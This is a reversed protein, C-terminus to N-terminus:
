WSLVEESRNNQYVFPESHPNAGISRPFRVRAGAGRPLLAPQLCVSYFTGCVDM